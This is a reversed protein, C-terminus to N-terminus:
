DKLETGAVLKAIECKEYPYNNEHERRCLAVFSSIARENAVNKDYITIIDCNPYNGLNCGTLQTENKSFGSTRIISLSSFTWFNEYVKKGQLAMVKDADVCNPKSNACIFEATGALNGIASLTREEAIGTAKDGINKSWVSLIFMGVLAFFIMLAVLMFAMEQVKLQGGRSLSPVLFRQNKLAQIKLQGKKNVM